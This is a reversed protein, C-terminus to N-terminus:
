SSEKVGSFSMRHLPCPGIKKLTEKHTKTPYGKHKEFEYEPYSRSVVNMLNDRVVKAVISAASIVDCIEDGKVLPSQLYSSSLGPIPLNGDVLVKGSKLHLALVARKMAQLSANLINMQDIERVCSFGIGVKSTEFIIECIEKRKKPSLKKSDNLKCSFSPPLIVAAAFVPGALCGRGVEDVGITAETKKPLKTKYPKM